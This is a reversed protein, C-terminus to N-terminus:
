NRKNAKLSYSPFIDLRIFIDALCWIGEEESFYLSHLKSNIANEGYNETFSRSYISYKSDFDTLSITLQSQLHQFKLHVKHWNLNVAAILEDSVIRRHAPM